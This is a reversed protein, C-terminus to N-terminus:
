RRALRLDHVGRTTLSIAGVRGSADRVFRLVGVDPSGFADAFVPELPLDAGRRTHLVLRGDRLQISWEAAVEDSAYTGVYDDLHATVDAPAPAVRTLRDTPTLERTVVASAAGTAPLTFSWTAGTTEDRFRGGGLPALAVSQGGRRISLAGDSAELRARTGVTESVWLGAYRAAEAAPLPKARPAAKAVTKPAALFVDAVGQALSMTNAEASNCLVIVSLRRDPFRMLMARYGAWAGGHQVRREGHYDDVFLGLGYTLERGDSLRARTQMAAPLGAGGVTPAYFNADWRALDEVTTQVAGDGVQEWDSMEVVWGASDGPAYGTARRPVVLRTDDLFRTDSMGLPAFIRRRAFERLPMGSVRSVVLGALFYGSNSYRWDSGPAFNLAKQRLLPELAERDTTHDREDWGALVMLDTYDRWGSTHNLLHRITVTAGLEPLEPIYKRVDDDLSLKGDQALLVLSAATFQKSTSGIDFVTRPGNPVGQELSAYGYGKEYASVGQRVVNLACGPSPSGPDSYKAFVADIRAATDGALIPAQAHLAASPGLLAAGALALAPFRRSM